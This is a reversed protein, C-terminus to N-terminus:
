AANYGLGILPRDDPGSLKAWSACACACPTPYALFSGTAGVGAAFDELINSLSGVCQTPHPNLNQMRYNDTSSIAFVTVLEDDVTLDHIWGWAREVHLRGITEHETGLLRVIEITAGPRSLLEQPTLADPRNHILLDGAVRWAGWPNEPTM